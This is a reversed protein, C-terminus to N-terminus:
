GSGVEGFDFQIEEIPIDIGTKQKVIERFKIKLDSVIEDNKLSHEINLGYSMPQYDNAFIVLDNSLFKAGYSYDDDDNKGGIKEVFEDLKYKTLVAIFSTTSSNSVFGSRIKM